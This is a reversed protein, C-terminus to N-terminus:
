RFDFGGFPGTHWSYNLRPTKDMHGAVWDGNYTFTGVFAVGQDDKVTITDTGGFEAEPLWGEGPHVIEHLTTGDGTVITMDLDRSTKNINLMREIENPSHASSASLQVARETGVTAATAPGVSVASFGIAACTAAVTLALKQINKNMATGKM